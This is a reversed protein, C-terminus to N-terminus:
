SLLSIYTEGSPKLVTSERFSGCRKIVKRKNFLFSNPDDNELPRDDFHEFLWFAPVQFFRKGSMFNSDSRTPFFNM